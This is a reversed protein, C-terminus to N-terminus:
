NFLADHLENQKKFCENILAEAEMDLIVTKLTTGDEFGELKLSPFDFVDNRIDMIPKLAAKLRNLSRRNEEWSGVVATEAITNRLDSLYKSPYKTARTIPTGSRIMEEYTVDYFRLLKELEDANPLSEGKEIRCYTSKSTKLEDAVQQQSLGANERYSKLRESIEM